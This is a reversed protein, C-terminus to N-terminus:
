SAHGRSNRRQAQRARHRRVIMEVGKRTTGLQEAVETQDYGQDLLLLVMRTRDDLEGLERNIEDRSILEQEPGAATPTALRWPQLEDPIEARHALVSTRWSRYVNPFRFLCQGIFYTKLSAGRRPDWRGPILVTDRFKEVAVVMTMGAIENWAENHWEWAPPEPLGGINRDALRRWILGSRMWSILVAYGYKILETVFYNWDRGRYRQERLRQALDADGCLRDLRSSDVLHPALWEGPVPLTEISDPDTPDM